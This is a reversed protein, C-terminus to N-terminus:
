GANKLLHSGECRAKDMRRWFLECKETVEWKGDLHNGVLSQDAIPDGTNDSIDCADCANTLLLAKCGCPM